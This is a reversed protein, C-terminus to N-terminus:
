VKAVWMRTSFIGEEGFVIFAGDVWGCSKNYGQAIHAQKQLEREANAKRVPKGDLIQAAEGYHQVKICYM